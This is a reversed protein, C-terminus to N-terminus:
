EDESGHMGGEGVYEEDAGAFEKVTFAHELSSGDSFDLSVVVEDGPQLAQVVGLLMIHNGGPALELTEGAAIVFGGDKEQMVMGSGDGMVTEHLEVMGAAESTAAVLVVDTSGTNEILAFGGTMGDDVAKVWADVIQVADAATSSSATPEAPATSCAALTAVLGAALLAALSARRGRPRPAASRSPALPTSPISTM